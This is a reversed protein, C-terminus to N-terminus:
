DERDIFQRAEEFGAHKHHFYLRWFLILPIEPSVWLKRRDLM